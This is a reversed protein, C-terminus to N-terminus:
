PGVPGVSHLVDSGVSSNPLGQSAASFRKTQRRLRCRLLDEPKGLSVLELLDPLPLPNLLESEPEATQRGILVALRYAAAKITTKPPPIIALVLVVFGIRTLITLINNDFGRLWLILHINRVQLM